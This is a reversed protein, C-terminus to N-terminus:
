AHRFDGNLLDLASPDVRAGAREIRKLPGKILGPDYKELRAIDAVAAGTYPELLWVAPASTALPERNPPTSSLDFPPALARHARLRFVLWEPSELSLRADLVADVRRQSIGNRDAKVVRCVLDLVDGDSKAFSGRGFM